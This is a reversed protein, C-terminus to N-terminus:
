GRFNEYLVPVIEAKTIYPMMNGKDQGFYEVMKANFEQIAKILDPTDTLMTVKGTGYKVILVFKKNM